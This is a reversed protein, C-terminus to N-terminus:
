DESDTSLAREHDQGGYFVGIISVTQRGEDVAYAIVTRGKHHTLRLGPRIDERAVGRLPFLALNECTAVVAGTYRQAITLSSREAIYLFLAELQDSAEPAFVVDYSM